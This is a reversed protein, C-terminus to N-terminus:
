VLLPTLLEGLRNDHCVYGGSDSNTLIVFGSRRQLSAMTLSRFGTQGGSHLIVHGTPREQVAWGLAWSDAGDIKAAPDLGVHPRVMESWMSAGLFADGDPRNLVALLFKTYDVATTRLEGVAGYRAIDAANPRKRPLPQGKNDHPRAATSEWAGRWAYGSATMGLPALLTRRMREEFDTACVELDGEYRGCPSRFSRGLVETMVSQLYFYGEGSYHFREGPDSEFKLARSSRWEPFGTTHSLAHRATVRDLRPDDAVFRSKTAHSLPTDLQLTGRECLKLAAYAFVTKSMSAAEFLSHEDVPQRTGADRVGFARHWLFRGDAVIAMSVGPVARDRMVEEVRRAISDLAKADLRAASIPSQSQGRVWPAVSSAGIASASMRLFSRRNMHTRWAEGRFDASM